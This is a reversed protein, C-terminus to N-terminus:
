GGFATIQRDPERRVGRTEFVRDKLWIQTEAIADEQTSQGLPQKRVTRRGGEM